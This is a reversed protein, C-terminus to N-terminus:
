EVNERLRLAERGKMSLRISDWRNHPGGIHQVKQLYDNSLLRDITETSGGPRLRRHSDRLTLIEVLGLEAGPLKDYDELWEKAGSMEIDAFIIARARRLLEYPDPM